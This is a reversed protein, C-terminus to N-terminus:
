SGPRGRGPERADSVYELPDIVPIENRRKELWSRRVPKSPLVIEALGLWDALGQLEESIADMVDSPAHPELHVAHVLM